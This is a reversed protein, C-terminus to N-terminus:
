GLNQHVAMQVHQPQQKLSARHHVGRVRAGADRGEVDGTQLLPALELTPPCPPRRTARGGKGERNCLIGVRKM